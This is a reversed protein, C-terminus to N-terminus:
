GGYSGGGRGGGYSSQGGYGGGRGGGYSSQGGYGGGGRGYGGSGYSQQAGFVQRDDDKLEPLEKARTVKFDVRRESEEYKFIDEFRQAIDSPVDFCGGTMDKYARMVRMQGTMTDPVYRKICNWIVSISFFPKDLVMQFTVMNEQGNLLSREQLLEKHQGSLLALTKCLARQADGGENSIMAM